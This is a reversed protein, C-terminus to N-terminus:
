TTWSFRWDVRQGMQGISHGLLDIWEKYKPREEFRLSRTEVLITELCRPLARCLQQATTIMKCELIKKNKYRRADKIHSPVKIGQWPLSGRALYVLVYILSEIDDRRSQEIGLHNNISAFRPTGTLSKNERYHIHRGTTADKYRKALGFDLLFLVNHRGEHGTVINEAKIDRHVISMNHLFSLAELMQMGIMLVDKIPLTGGSDHMIDEVSKGLLEMALCNRGAINAFWEKRPIFRIGRSSRDAPKSKHLYDYIRAEYALLSHGPEEIKIAVRKGTEM